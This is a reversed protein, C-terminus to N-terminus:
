AEVKKSPWAPVKATPTVGDAVPANQQEQKKTEPDNAGKLASVFARDIRVIGLVEHPKLDKRMQRSWSEVSEWTAPAIGNPSDGRGESWEAHLADLYALTKPYRPWQLKRKAELNGNRASAKWADRNSVGNPAKALMEARRAVFQM